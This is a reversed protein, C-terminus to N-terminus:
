ANYGFEVLMNTLEDPTTDEITLDHTLQSEITIHDTIGLNLIAITRNARGKKLKKNTM